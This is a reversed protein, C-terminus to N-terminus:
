VKIEVGRDGDNWIHVDFQRLFARLARHQGPTLLVAPWLRDLDEGLDLQELIWRVFLSREETETKEADERDILVKGNMRAADTTVATGAVGATKRSSM